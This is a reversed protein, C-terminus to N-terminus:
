SLHTFIVCYIKNLTGSLQAMSVLTTTDHTDPVTEPVQILDPEMVANKNDTLEWEVQAPKDKEPPQANVMVVAENPRIM